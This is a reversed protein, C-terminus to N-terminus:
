DSRRSRAHFNERLKRIAHFMRSKVTGLPIELVAAIEAYRLGQYVSLAVVWRLHEPLAELAEALDLREDIWSASRAEAKEGNNLAAKRWRADRRSWDVWAHRALTYLFVGFSASPRYRDGYRFLRLFTEQACDEAGHIDAGLRRFFNMLSHQHRRVLAAFAEREGAGFRRMLEIDTRGDHEV